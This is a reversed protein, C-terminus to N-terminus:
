DFVHRVWLLCVVVEKTEEENLCENSFLSMLLDIVDQKKLMMLASFEYDFQELFRLIAVINKSDEESCDTDFGRYFVCALRHVDRNFTPLLQKPEEAARIRLCHMKCDLVTFFSPQTIPEAPIHGGIKCDECGIIADEAPAVTPHNLTHNDYVCCFQSGAILLESNAKYCIFVKLTVEVNDANRIKKPQSRNTVLQKYANTNAISRNNEVIVAFVNGTEAQTPLDTSIIANLHDNNFAFFSLGAPFAEMLAIKQSITLPQGSALSGDFNWNADADIQELNEFRILRHEADKVEAPFITRYVWRRHNDNDNWM